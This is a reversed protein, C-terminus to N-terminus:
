FSHTRLSPEGSRTRTSTSMHTKRALDHDFFCTQIPTHKPTHKPTHISTHKGHINRLVPSKVFPANRPYADLYKDPHTDSPDSMSMKM